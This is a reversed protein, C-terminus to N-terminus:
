LKSAIGYLLLYRNPSSKLALEYYKLANQYNGRLFQMDAYLEISSQLLYNNKGTEVLNLMLSFANEYERKAFHNWARATQLYVTFRDGWELPLGRITSNVINISNELETLYYSSEVPRKLRSFAYSKAFYWDIFPWQQTNFTSNLQVPQLITTEKTLETFLFNELYFRVQLNVLEYIIDFSEPSTIMKQNFTTYLQMIKRTHTIQGRQSLTYVLFAASRYAHDTYIDTSLRLVNSDVSISEKWLGLHKFISAPTHAAHPDGFTFQVFKRAQNLAMFAYLDDDYALM